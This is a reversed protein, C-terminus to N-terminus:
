LGFLRLVARRRLRLISDTPSLDMPCVDTCNGQGHCRLLADEGLLQAWRQAKAADRSDLELTFARNLAAPGPFRGNHAVM